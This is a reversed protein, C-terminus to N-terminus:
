VITKEEYYECGPITLKQRTVAETIKAVDPVLYERPILTEDVIRMRPLIRVGGRPASGISEVKRAATDMRMTGKEVRAEVRAKELTIRAEEAIQWALRKAKVTKKADAIGLELPKFMDRISALGEMIPRTIAEKRATVKKEADLIVKSFQEASAYELENTVVLDNAQQQIALVQTKVEAIEQTQETMHLQNDRAVRIITTHAPKYDRCRGM